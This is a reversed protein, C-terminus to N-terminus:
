DESKSVVTISEIRGRSEYGDATRVWPDGDYRLDRSVNEDVVYLRTGSREDVAVVDGQERGVVSVRRSPYSGSTTVDVVDGVRLGWITRRIDPGTYTQDEDIDERDEVTTGEPM